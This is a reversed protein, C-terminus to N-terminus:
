RKAVDELLAETRRKARALAEETMAEARAQRAEVWAPGAWRNAAARDAATPKKDWLRYDRGEAEIMGRPWRAVGVINTECVTLDGLDIGFCLVAARLAGSREEIWVAAGGADDQGDFAVDCLEDLTVIRPGDTIRRNWDAAANEACIHPATQRGCCTCRVVLMGFGTENAIAYDAAGGCGECPRLRPGCLESARQTM